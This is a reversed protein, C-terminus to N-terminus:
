RAKVLRERGWVAAVVLGVTMLAASLPMLPASDGEYEVRVTFSEHPWGGGDPDPPYDFLYIQIHWAGPRDFVFPVQYVGDMWPKHRLQYPVNGQSAGEPFIFARVGNLESIWQGTEEDRVQVLIQRRENVRYQSDPNLIRIRPNEPLILGRDPTDPSEMKPETSQFIIPVVEIGGWNSIFIVTGGWTPRSFLSEPAAILNMEATSDAPLTRVGRPMDLGYRLHWRMGLHGALFMGVDQDTETMLNELTFNAYGVDSLDANM